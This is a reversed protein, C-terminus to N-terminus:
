KNFKQKDVKSSKKEIKENVNNKINNDEDHTVVGNYFQAKAHKGQEVASEDVSKKGELQTSPESLNSNSANLTSKNEDKKTESEATRTPGTQGELRDSDVESRIARQQAALASDQHNHSEQTSKGNKDKAAQALGSATVDSQNSGATQNTTEKRTQGELRDSDVEGRIARRQAALSSESPENDSEVAVNRAQDKLANAQREAEQRIRASSDNHSVNNQKTVKVKSKKATATLVLGLASGLIAGAVFGFVLDLSRGSEYQPLEYSELGKTYLDRNYKEM